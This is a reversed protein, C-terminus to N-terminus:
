KKKLSVSDIHITTGGSSVVYFGVDLYGNTVNINDLLVHKWGNTTPLDYNIATGGYNTVELRWTSPATNACKVWAEVQYTGNEVSVGQHISQQYAGSQYFYARKDGEKPSEPPNTGSGSDIGYALAQGSPHWEVWNSSNSGREFGPNDLRNLSLGGTANVLVTVQDLNINGSNSSDYCYSITNEGESLSLSTSLQQWDNWNGGNGPLTLTTRYVENVYVNVTKNGTNGNCYRLLTTYSGANPVDVSVSVKAGVSTMGDVFGSGQYFWHNTNTAASGYLAGYEAEAIIQDPFFPVSLYDLNVNGTDSASSDYKVTISNNGASLPLIQTVSAWSDWSGTPLFSVKAEYSGNVYISMTQTLTGGNAYRLTVPFAGANSVKAYFTVAAEDQWFGDAFGTGSYGSHNQNVGAKTQPTAGSLSADEAEYVIADSAVQTTGSVVVELETSSLAPVKVYTVEGYVDKSVVYGSTSAAKLATMDSFSSLATGNLTVTQGAKKHVALYYHSVGNTYNGEKAGISVNVTDGSKVCSISQGVYAGSEYNYTAGDDDYYDFTSMQDSPFVEVTLSDISEEGVYDLVKQTPLIAGAKVFLPIDNLDKADLSYPIYRGGTYTTGRNYDTWEGAPLYIWKVTQGRQTVPAVLLSDGFMWADTDNAVNTDEPYDFVLPRILGLGTDYAGREYSYLYPLLSYRLQIVAKVAEEATSGYYWPQRQQYNNGHVRFVPTFAGFQLWRTYLEPSPNQITGSNQNFGGGDMGWKPQGNNISSLLVAKQEKLGAAWSISEGKYFQAGVDGSWISTAYRQTGPYYNRATQWVRTQGQTYGKQGEYIAQSLHLTTFNGFWYEAGNSSVKDTEDNWWGVIGKDFADKSHDWFWSRMSANYPDISRVTVPLFYDTYENHGPYFYNGAQADLGQVTASGDSLKTVIRPKTIGILKIGKNEMTTKLSTTAASPFKTTNFAFEGYNNEGYKKWDYDLAYSDIPINKARYTDVMNTLETEDINWEFNSFGLSWRPMMPSTGTIKYYSKLIEKPAGLLIYYEVDQKVYRRGETPTGGYYFEMKKDTANTYPYGGDSDVLLGYGASSWLFPGGSNGQQGATAASTNNNRLLEGNDSFCDYSHIGYINTAEQRVFRVGDYFVGGASPEYFLTTGDAKKVRMRCPTRSIEIRMDTTSITIPDGSTDITANISDWTLAPDIIPTDVSPAIGNPRYDVRLVGDSCAEMVLFDDNAEAGNDVTLTLTRGDVQTGTVNGLASVYAHAIISNSGNLLLLCLLIATVYPLYRGWRKQNM